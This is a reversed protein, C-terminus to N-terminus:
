LAFIRFIYCLDFPNQTNKCTFHFIVDKRQGVSQADYMQGGGSGHDVAAILDVGSRAVFVGAFLTERVEALVRSELASLPSVSELYQVTQLTDATVEVREGVLLVGGVVGSDEFVVHRTRHVQEGVDDEVRGIGLLFDVLLHLHDTILDLAVVVRGCFEDVVLKFVEDKVTMRQAMVDKANGVAHPAIGGSVRQAKRATVVTGVVRNEEGIAIHIEM